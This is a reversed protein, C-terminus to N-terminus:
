PLCPSFRGRGIREAWAILHRVVIPGKQIFANIEVQIDMTANFTGHLVRTRTYIGNPTICSQTAQSDHDLPWHWYGHSFEFTRFYKARALKSLEVKIDVM